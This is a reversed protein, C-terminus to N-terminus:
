DDNAPVGLAIGRLLDSLTQHGEKWDADPQTSGLMDLDDALGNLDLGHELALRRALALYASRM